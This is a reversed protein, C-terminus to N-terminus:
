PPLMMSIYDESFYKRLMRAWFICDLFVLQMELHCSITAAVTNWLTSIKFVHFSCSQFRWLCFSLSLGALPWSLGSMFTFGRNSHLGWSKFHNHSCILSQVVCCLWLGRLSTLLWNIFTCNRISHLSWRIPSMLIIAQGGLVTAYISYLWRSGILCSTHLHCLLLLPAGLGKPPRFILFSDWIGSLSSQKFIVM